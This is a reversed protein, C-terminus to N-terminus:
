TVEGSKNVDCVEFANELNFLPNAYLRMRVDEALVEVRFHTKWLEKFDMVTLPVFLHEPMAGAFVNSRSMSHRANIMSAYHHDLPVFADCFEAFRIRGDRDKDYRHFFLEIEDQSPLIGLKHVLGNYLEQLTLSGRGMDDFIKFADFLNFDTHMILQIKSSEILREQDILALFADLIDEKVQNMLLPKNMKKMFNSKSNSLANKMAKSDSKVFFDNRTKKSASKPNSINPRQMPDSYKSKGYFASVPRKTKKKKKKEEVFVREELVHSQLREPSQHYLPNAEHGYVKERKTM